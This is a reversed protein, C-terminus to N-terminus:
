GVLVPKLDTKYVMLKKAARVIEFERKQLSSCIAM